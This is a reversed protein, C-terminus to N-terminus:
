RLIAQIIKFPSEATKQPSFQVFMKKEAYSYEPNRFIAKIDTDSITDFSNAIEKMKEAILSLHKEAQEQTDFLLPNDFNINGDTGIPFSTGICILHTFRAGNWKELFTSRIKEGYERDLYRIISDYGFPKIKAITDGDGNQVTNIADKVRYHFFQNKREEPHHLLNPVDFFERGDEDIRIRRCIVQDCFAVEVNKTDRNVTYNM